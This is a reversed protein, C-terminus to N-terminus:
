SGRFSRGGQGKIFGGASPNTQHRKCTHLSTPTNGIRPISQRVAFTFPLLDESLTEGTPLLLIRIHTHLWQDEAVLRGPPKKLLRFVSLQNHDTAMTASPKGAHKQTRDTRSNRLRCRNWHDHNATTLAPERRSESHSSSFILVPSADNRPLDKPEEYQPWRQM